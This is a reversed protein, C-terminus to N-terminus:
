ELVSIIVLQSCILTSCPGVSHLGAMSMGFEASMTLEHVQAQQLQLFMHLTCQHHRYNTWSCTVSTLCVQTPVLKYLCIQSPLNCDHLVSVLHSSCQSRCFCTVFATASSPMVDFIHTLHTCADSGHMMDCVHVRRFCVAVSHMM